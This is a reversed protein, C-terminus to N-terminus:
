YVGFAVYVGNARLWNRWINTPDNKAIKRWNIYLGGMNSSFRGFIPGTNLSNQSLFGGVWIPPM